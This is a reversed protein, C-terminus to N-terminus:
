PLARCRTWQHARGGDVMIRPDDSAAVRFLRGARVRRSIASATLGLALLRERHLVGHNAAMALAISTDIDHVRSM